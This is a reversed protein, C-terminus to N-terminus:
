MQYIHLTQSTKLSWSLSFTPVSFASNLSPFKNIKVSYNKRSIWSFVFYQVSINSLFFINYYHGVSMSTAKTWLPLCTFCMCITAQHSADMISSFHTFSDFFLDSCLLIFPVAVPFLSLLLFFGSLVTSSALPTLGLSLYFSSILLQGM